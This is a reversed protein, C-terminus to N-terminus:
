VTILVYDVIVDNASVWSNGSMPKLRPQALSALLFQM